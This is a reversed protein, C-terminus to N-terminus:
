AAFKTRAFKLVEAFPEGGDRVAVGQVKLEKWDKISRSDPVLAEQITVFGERGDWNFRLVEKRKGLTLTWSGFSLYSYSHEYVAVGLPALESCLAVVKNWHNACSQVDSNV